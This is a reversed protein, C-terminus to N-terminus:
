ILVKQKGLVAKEALSSVSFLRSLLEDLPFVSMMYWLKKM